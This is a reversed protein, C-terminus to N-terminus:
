GELSSQESASATRAGRGADPNELDVGFGRLVEIALFRTRAGWRRPLRRGNAAALWEAVPVFFGSKPRSFLEDPLEPAAEHVAAAKGSSRAPEFGAGAVRARLEVDVLPVRLELSHAMSAWDADRLLQDRMYVTSEMAHVAQWSDSVAGAERGVETRRRVDEIPDYAALGQEAWSSGILAPLEEPLFLGRRLFYSGELSAGYRALGAIKPRVPVLCRSALHAPGRLGPLTAVRAAAAWRPVDRFSRYSGFLEDGGLGSLVVKLGAEHAAQSVMFTNFGDVSPQDMAELVRPWQGLFAERKVIREIHDTGLRQAVKAALPAEDLATAHFEGFGVTITTLPGPHTRRALAAIMGSDLGASLFVAVPVDAVMHARVSDEVAAGVGDPRPDQDRRSFPSEFPAPEGVLGGRVELVHGAPLARVGRFITWPEPVFGWLLFGVLGAPEVAGGTWAALPRAQSAFCVREPTAAYYLPKIGYPDRALLLRRKADDWLAFAYMGRAHRLAAPGRRSVLELLVETDSDSRFVVGEGELDHRLERYNYIEGNLVIHFRGDASAMPQAGRESLDIIALRRHALAAMGSPSVWSGVGDPGRSAM